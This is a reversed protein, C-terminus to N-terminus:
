KASMLCHKLPPRVPSGSQNLGWNKFDSDIFSKFTKKADSIYAKGGQAEIMIKENASIIKTISAITEM